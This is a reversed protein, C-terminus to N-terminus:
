SELRRSDSNKDINVFGNIAFVNRLYLLCMKDGSYEYIISIFKAVDTSYM